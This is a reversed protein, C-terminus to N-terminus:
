NKRPPTGLKELFMQHYLRLVNHLLAQFAADTGESLLGTGKKRDLILPPLCQARSEERLDLNAAQIDILHMTYFFEFAGIELADLVRKLSEFKPFEKGNEYKSLQSKGIGAERCIQAASKGRIERILILAKGLNDFM